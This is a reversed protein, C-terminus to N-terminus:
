GAYLMAFVVWYSVLAAGAGAVVVTVRARWSTGALAITMAVIALAWAFGRVMLEDRRAFSATV